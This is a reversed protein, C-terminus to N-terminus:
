VLMCSITPLTGNRSTGGYQAGMLNVTTGFSQHERGLIERLLVDGRYRQHRLMSRLQISVSELLQALTTKGNIAVRLPLVNSMMAPTRRTTRARGSVPVGIVIDEEGTLHHLLALVAALIVKGSTQSSEQTLMDLATQQQALVNFELRMVRSSAPGGHGKLHLPQSWGQLQGHWYQQDAAQQPSRDYREGEEWVDRLSGFLPPEPARGEVFATYIQGLRVSILAVGIGDLIIQHYRQYFFTREPELKILAFSFLKDRLLDVPQEVDADMWARATLEPDESRTCDIVLLDWEPVAGVLQRPWGDSVIFRLRFTEVEEVLLRLAAEFLRTDLVGRLDFFDAISYVAKDEGLTHAFWV